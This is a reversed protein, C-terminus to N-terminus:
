PRLLKVAQELQNDGKGGYEAFSDAEVIVDPQIGNYVHQGGDGIWRGNPTFTRLNTIRLRVGNGVPVYTQGVGKGFTQTGLVTVRGNDQLAATFLESASATGGNVLVVVPRQGSLNPPRRPFKLTLGEAFSSGVRIGMTGRTVIVSYRFHGSGPVRTDLTTITGEDLFMASVDVASHIFGGPNDRVDVILARCDQLDRLGDEFQKATDWRDFGELRIYGIGDPLHATTVTPVSVYDRTVTLDIEAGGRRIRLKVATGREGRLTTSLDEM